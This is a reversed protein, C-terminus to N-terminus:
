DGLEHNSRFMDAEYRDRIERLRELREGFIREPAVPRDAFNLYTSGADQPALAERVQALKALIPPADDPGVPHRRRIDHVRRRASRASRVRRDPPGPCRRRSSGRVDPAARRQRPRHGRGSPRHDGRRPRRADPPRRYRSRRRAPGHPPRAAGAPDVDRVHGQDSRARAAAGAARDGEEPQRPLLGRGRRVVPRARSRSRPFRRSSSCRPRGLDDGRPGDHELAALGRPGRRRARDPLVADGRSRTSRCCGSSWPRSSASTAAAAASPGSCSPTRTPPRRPAARRRRHRDRDRHVREVGPRAQPRALQRRRRAHLRGRGRRPLLGCRPSATSPRRGRRGRGLHRRREVRAIRTVPDVEVGRMRETKILLTNDLDTYASAIHGTGQVAVRLGHERAFGVLTTVDAVDAPLGVYAPHQDVALNWASRAEDWGEDAPALLEGTLQTNVFETDILTTPNFM